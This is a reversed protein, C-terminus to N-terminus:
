LKSALIGWYGVPPASYGTARSRWSASGVAEYSNLPYGQFPQTGSIAITTAAAEGAVVPQYGFWWVVSNSSPRTDDDAIIHDSYLHDSALQTIAPDWTISQTDNVDFGYTDTAYGSAYAAVDFHFLADSALDALADYGVTTTQTGLGLHSDSSAHDQTWWDEMAGGSRPGLVILAAATYQYLAHSLVIPTPDPNHFQVTISNGESGDRLKWMGMARSTTGGFSSWPNVIGWGPQVYLSYPASVNTCTIIVMLCGDEITGPLTLDLTPFGRNVYTFQTTFGRVDPM